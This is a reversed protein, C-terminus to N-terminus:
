LLKLLLNGALRRRYQASARVDDIPKVAEMALLGAETLVELTLVKGVLYSEVEPATVVTPGVSGWALRIQTVTGDQEQQWAAALSAVAIAMARRKGVKHYFFSTGRPRRPLSVGTVVEGKELLHKGPGTIFQDVPVLRRGGAGLVEVAAGLVYLPPLSDAVPSASCINGVLTAVHRIPPSALETLAQFLGAYETQLITQDLLRQQTVAAGIFFSDEHCELRQLETLRELCFVAPPQQRAHRLQVLLDTGGAMIRGQPFTTMLDQLEASTSPFLVEM